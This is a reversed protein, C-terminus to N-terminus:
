LGLDRKKEEFEEKSIEGSAYRRKLIELADDRPAGRGRGFGYRSGLVIAVVIAAFIFLRVFGGLFGLGRFM